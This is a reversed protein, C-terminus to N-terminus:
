CLIGVGVTAGVFLCYLLIWVARRTGTSQNVEYASHVMAVAMMCLFAIKIPTSM